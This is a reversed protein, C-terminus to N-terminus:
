LYTDTGLVSNLYGDGDALKTTKDKGYLDFEIVVDLHIPLLCDLLSELIKQKTEGRRFQQFMESTLPGIKVLIEDIGEDYVENGTTFNVGLSSDGLMSLIPEAPYLPMQNRLEVHVQLGLMMELVMEIVSHNDRIDHIIPILHLFLNSQRSDLYQFIEWQDTFINVLDDYHNRKDLRNEFFAAQMRLNNITAEFPIFFKRADQEEEKRQKIARCIEKVTKASKHASPQHFLGEPLMDYFGEKPTKIVVYEEHDYVSLEEEISEVDKRHSRKMAGMLLIMVRDPSIGLEIMEAATVEAKFDKELNSFLTLPLDGPKM